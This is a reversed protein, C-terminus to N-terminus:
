YTFHFKERGCNGRKSKGYFNCRGERQNDGITYIHLRALRALYFHGDNGQIALPWPPLLTCHVTTNSEQVLHLGSHNCQSASIQLNEWYIRERRGRDRGEEEGCVQFLDGLELFIVELIPTLPLPEAASFSLSTKPENHGPSSKKRKPNWELFRLLHDLITELLGEKTSWTWLGWINQGGFSGLTWVIQREDGTWWDWRKEQSWLLFQRNLLKRQM